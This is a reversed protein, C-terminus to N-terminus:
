STAQPHRPRNQWYAELQHLLSMVLLVVVFLTLYLQLPKEDFGHEELQEAAAFALLAYGMNHIIKGIIVPPAFLLPSYRMMALSVIILSDPMPLAASLFLVGPLLRPKTAKIQQLWRDFRNSTANPSIKYAMWYALSEGMGAGLGVVAGLLLPVLPTDAHIAAPILPLNYPIHIFLIANSILAVLVMGVWGVEALQDLLRDFQQIQDGVMWWLVGVLVCSMMGYRLKKQM